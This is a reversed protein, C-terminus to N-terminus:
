TTGYRITKNTHKKNVIGSKIIKNRLLVYKNNKLRQYIQNVLFFHAETPKNKVQRKRYGLYPLDKFEELLKM